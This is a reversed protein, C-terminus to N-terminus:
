LSLGLSRKLYNLVDNETVLYQNELGKTLITKELSSVVENKLDKSLYYDKSKTCNIFLAFVVTMLSLAKQTTM